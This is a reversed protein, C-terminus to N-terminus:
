VTLMKNVLLLEKVSVFQRRLRARHPTVKTLYHDRTWIGGFAGVIGGQNVTPVHNLSKGNSFFEVAGGCDEVVSLDTRMKEAKIKLRHRLSRQYNSNFQSPDRLFEQETKSLM